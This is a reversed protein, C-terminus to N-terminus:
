LDYITHLLLCFSYNSDMKIHKGRSDVLRIQLRAFDIPGFYKRPTSLVRIEKTMENWSLRALISSSMVMQSFAPPFSAVSRNQFDDVLLFFYSLSANIRVPVEGMYQTKGSYQKQTFGLVYGMRTFYDQTKDMEGNVDITFDLSIYKIRQTFFDHEPHSQILLICKGSGFPDKQWELFMFPTGAQEELMRNLTDLLREIDYHGDPVIFVQNFDKEVTSISIYIYHNGLSSSINYISTYDLEFSACEVSLVNTIKSPLTVIFDSNTASPPRFRSDITLCKQLTRRDLPNLSGPFYESEQTYVFNTQKPLIINEERSPIALNPIPYNVSPIQKNEPTYITTHQKPATITKILRSKGEELFSILDLKFHKDIHGSSLLLERIEFERKSIEDHAYPKSLKFFRELDTIEYHNIDLDLDIM